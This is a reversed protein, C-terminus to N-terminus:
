SKAASTSSTSRPPASASRSTAARPVAAVFASPLQPPIDGGPQVAPQIATDSPTAAILPAALTLAAAILAFKSFGM